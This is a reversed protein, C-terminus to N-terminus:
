CRVQADKVSQVNMVWEPVVWFDGEETIASERAMVSDVLQIGLRHLAWMVDRCRDLLGDALTLAAAALLQQTSVMTGHISSILQQCTDASPPVDNPLQATLVELISSIGAACVQRAQILQTHDAKSSDAKASAQWQSRGIISGRQATCSM